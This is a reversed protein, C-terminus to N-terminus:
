EPFEMQLFDDSFDLCDICYANDKQRIGKGGTHGFIQPLEPIPEFEANFDCWYIGGVPQNGGRYHGIWQAPTGSEKDCWETLKEQYNDLTLAENNWIQRTLGAHTVLIDEIVVFDKFLERMEPWVSKMITNHQHKWGSCEAWPHIYSLEHNGILATAKGERVAKIVRVICEYHDEPSREFSDMYDGVFVVHGEQDLAKKVMQVKGHIDGVFTYKM